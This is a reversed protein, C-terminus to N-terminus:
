ANTLAPSMAVWSMDVSCSWKMCIWPALLWDQFTCLMSIDGSGHSFHACPTAVPVKFSYDESGSTVSVWIDNLISAQEPTRGACKFSPYDKPLQVYSTSCRPWASVDLESIPRTALKEANTMMQPLLVHHLWSRMIIASVQSM